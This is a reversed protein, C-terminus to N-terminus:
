PTSPQSFYRIQRGDLQHYTCRQFVAFLEATASNTSKDFFEINLQIVRPKGVSDFDSLPALNSIAASTKTSTVANM